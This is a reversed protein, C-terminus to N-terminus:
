VLPETKQQEQYHQIDEGRILATQFVFEEATTLIVLWNDAKEDTMSFPQIERVGTAEPHQMKAIAEIAIQEIYEKSQQPEYEPRM